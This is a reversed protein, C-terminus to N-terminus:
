RRRFYEVNSPPNQPPPNQSCIGDVCYLMDACDSQQGCNSGLSGIDVTDQHSYDDSQSSTNGSLEGFTKYDDASQFYSM